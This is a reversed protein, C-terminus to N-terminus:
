NILDDVTLSLSDLTSLAHILETYKEKKLYRISDNELAWVEKQLNSLTDQFIQYEDIYSDVSKKRQCSALICISFIGLLLYNNITM